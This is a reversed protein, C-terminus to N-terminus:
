PQGAAAMPHKADLDTLDAHLGEEIQALCRWHQALSLFAGQEEPQSSLDPHLYLAQCYRIVRHALQPSRGDRVYRRVLDGLHQKLDDPPLKTPMEDALPDLDIHILKLDSM